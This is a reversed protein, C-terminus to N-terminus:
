TDNKILPYYNLVKGRSVVLRNGGGFLVALVQPNVKWPYKEYVDLEKKKLMNPDAPYGVLALPKV